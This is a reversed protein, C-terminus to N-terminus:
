QDGGAKNPPPVRSPWLDFFKDPEPSSAAAKDLCASCLTRGLASTELTGSQTGCLECKVTM